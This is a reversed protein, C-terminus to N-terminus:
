RPPWTSSTTQSAWITGAIGDMKPSWERILVPRIHRHHLIAGGGRRTRAFWQASRNHRDRTKAMEALVQPDREGDILAALMARGSVGTIDTAVSSLKIGADELEKELRQAERSREATLTTRYRTLDRLQRIPEPPVFSARLLGCEGLQCLWAADCVDTKRGPLGKAHAANVLIVNLQDELLYFAGRWYDGTAEVVVLSVQEAVLWDRLELLANTTTAFTRIEQRRSRKGKPSPTRVCAKLDKKGIDLAACREHLLEM